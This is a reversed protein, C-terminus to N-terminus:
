GLILAGFTRDTGSRNSLKLGTADCWLRFDGSVPETAGGVTINSGAVMAEVLNSQFRYLGIGSTGAGMNIWVTGHNSTQTAVGFDFVEGDSILSSRPTLQQSKITDLPAISEVRTVKSMGNEDIRGRRDFGYVGNCDVLLVEGATGSREVLPVSAGRNIVNLLSTNRQAGGGQLVGAETLECTVNSFSMSLGPQSGSNSAQVMYKSQGLVHVDSVSFSQNENSASVVSFLQEMTADSLWAGRIGSISSGAALELAESSGTARILEIPVFGDYNVEIDSCLFGGVQCDIEPNRTIGVEGIDISSDKELTLGSVHAFQTQLKISRNRSNRIVGGRIRASVQRPLGITNQYYQFVRLGDMDYDVAPDESYVRDVTLDEIVLKRVGLENTNDRFVTIGTVGQSGISSAGVAVHCNRAVPRILHLEDMAGGVLIGDGDSFANGSRYSNEVQLDELILSVWDDPYNVPATADTAIFGSYAFDNADIRFIGKISNWGAPLRLRFVSRAASAPNFLIKAGSSIWNVRTTPAKSIEGTVTYVDGFDGWDLPWGTDIADSIAQDDDDVFFARVHVHQTPLWETGSWRFPSGYVIAQAGEALLTTSSALLESVSAYQFARDDLAGAVTQTGTSTTIESESDYKQNIIGAAEVADTVGPIIDAM